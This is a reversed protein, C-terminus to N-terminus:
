RFGQCDAYLLFVFAKLATIQEGKLTSIGDMQALVAAAVADVRTEKAAHILYAGFQM